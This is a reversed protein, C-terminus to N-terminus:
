RFRKQWGIKLIQGDCYFLIPSEKEVFLWVYFVSIAAGAVVDHAHHKKAQIRSYATFASLSYPVVASKFGYRKHIFAAGVFASATHGSPFSDTKNGAPRKENVANKLAFVTAETAAFSYGFQKLGDYDKEHMAMGLAYAPVIAQLYDGSEEVWGKSYANLSLLMLLFFLRFRTTM